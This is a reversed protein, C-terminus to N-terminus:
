DTVAYYVAFPAALLIMGAALLLPTNLPVPSWDINPLSFGGLLFIVGAITALLTAAEVFTIARKANRAAELQTRRQVRWWVAGSSPIPANRMASAGDEAIASAVTALDGCIGCSTVHARLEADCREPWRGATIASLVEAEFACQRDFM